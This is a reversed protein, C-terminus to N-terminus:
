RTLPELAVKLASYGNLEFHELKITHRGGLDLVATDLTPGHYTWNEIVKKGDVWVRVGDDSTVNLTYRGPKIEFTGEALTGFNDNTIGAAPSGGWGYNIETTKLPTTAGSARAIWGEYNTRPDEKALDYNFWKISWDISIQFRSWRLKIDQGAPATMGRDNTTTRSSRYTLDVEQLNVGAPFTAIVSGPVQGSTQSLIAGPMPNATWTGAPGLIEFTVETGGSVAKQGRAWLKPSKFDYPGWEDVLIWRRGRTEGSKLFPNPLDNRWSPIKPLSGKYVANLEKQFKMSDRPNWNTKFRALYDERRPDLGLIVNGSSQMLARPTSYLPSLVTNVGSGISNSDKQWAEATALVRNNEWKVPEADADATVLRANSEFINNKATVGKTNRLNFVTQPIGIFRNGEVLNNRSSTDRYKPYGWNPDESKKQWLVLGSTDRRFTNGKIINDLGHEWAIAEGNMGFTNGLVLSEFSYGLWAGHWCELMLNNVFANRSFTAEIGNTPAHSFDNGILLNDNCGGQGTDMTTQGAWLFFGDGGHTVSNYAFINKNSQEYILIGTSDQGRNYVGHSYGRVCWDIKNQQILNHSSQYMGLGVSSLFSFDNGVIEARDTETIMLGNQGGKITVGKILSDDCDRLYVGAGYRLWEDKENRHYSMWDATDEKDLTSGLKQKWNYSFDSDLLRLGKVGKAMLGVKYGHVRLNKLTINTGEVRIGTGARLNPMTEEPSGRLVFGAFDVTINSGRIVMAADTGDEKQSPALAIGPKLKTSETIVRPFSDGTFVVLVATALMGQM